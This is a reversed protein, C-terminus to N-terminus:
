LSANGIVISSLSGLQLHLDVTVYGAQRNGALLGQHAKAPAFYRWTVLDQKGIKSFQDRAKSKDLPYLRCPWLVSYSGYDKRLNIGFRQDYEAMLKDALQRWQQTEQAHGM